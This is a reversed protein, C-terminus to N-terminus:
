PRAETATTTTARSSPWTAAGDDRWDCSSFDFESHPESAFNFESHPESAFWPNVVPVGKM